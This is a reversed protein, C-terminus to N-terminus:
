TQLLLKIEQEFYNLTYKQSWILAKQSYEIFKQQNNLLEIVKIFDNEVDLDILIGRNGFNLMYPVCSVKTAIPVCGWFMGEAIAKPWGESESPLIVFHSEQYAKKLTENNQNGHFFIRKQLNNTKVFILLEDKLVGDGYIDLQIDVGNRLLKQLLEIAFMPKKGSVLTGVFVIKIKENLKRPLCNIKENESYTATFFPKINKTSEEWEGYVLVRMKKTLFTNSLIKQQLKYSFPQKSNLDWNGAYKATKTKFPFFVQALSGLLGMNGPCRLHIHNAKFCCKIIKYFLIPINLITFFISRKSKVNFSNVKIFEINNHHYPLNIESVQANETPAIIIVKTVYKLWINMERIYPAYSYYQNNNLIHPVQTVILFVM